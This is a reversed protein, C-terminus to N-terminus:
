NISAEGGAHSKRATGITACYNDRLFQATMGAKADNRMKGSNKLTEEIAAMFQRVHDSLALNQAEAQHWHGMEQMSSAKEEGADVMNYLWAGSICALMMIANGSGNDPIPSLNEGKRVPSHMVMGFRIAGMFGALAQISARFAYESFDFLKVPISIEYTGPENSLTGDLFFRHDERITNGPRVVRAQLEVAEHMTRIFPRASEPLKGMGYMEDLAKRRKAEGM